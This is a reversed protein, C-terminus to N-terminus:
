WSYTSMIFKLLVSPAPCPLFANRFTYSYFCLHLFLGKMCSVWFNCLLAPITDGFIWERNNYSAVYFLVVCENHTEKFNRLNIKPSPARFFRWSLTKECREHNHSPIDMEVTLQTIGKLGGLSYIALRLCMCRQPCSWLIEGNVKEFVM